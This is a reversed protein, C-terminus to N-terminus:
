RRTDPPLADSPLLLQQGITPQGSRNLSRRNMAYIEEARRADGLRDAAIAELTEDRLVTHIPKVKRRDRWQDMLSARPAACRPPIDVAVHGNRVVQRDVKPDAQRPSNLMEDVAQVVPTGDLLRDGRADVELARDLEDKPPLRISDGVRLREPRAVIRDRNASWLSLAFQGSGYSARSISRFDEGRRVVHSAPEQEETGAFSARVISEDRESAAKRRPPASRPDVAIELDAGRPEPGEAALNRTSRSAGQYEPTSPEVTLPPLECPKLIHPTLM